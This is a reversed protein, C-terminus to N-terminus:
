ADIRALKGVPTADLQEVFRIVAPMKHSCGSLESVSRTFCSHALIDTLSVSHRADSISRGKLGLSLYERLAFIERPFM